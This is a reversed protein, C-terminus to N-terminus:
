SISAQISFNDFQSIILSFSTFYSQEFALSINRRSGLTILTGPGTVTYNRILLNASINMTLKM